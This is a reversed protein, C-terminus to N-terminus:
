NTKGMADLVASGNRIAPRSFARVKHGKATLLRAGKARSDHDAWPGLIRPPGYEFAYGKPTKVRRVRARESEPLRAIARERNAKRRWPGALKRPPADVRELYYRLPVPAAKENRIVVPAILISGGDGVRRIRASVKDGSNGEVCRVVSGAAGGGPGPSVVEVVVGIHVGPWCLMMGVRPAKTWIAGKARAREATVATSASTLGDDPTDTEAYWASVAAGCWPWGTGGLDASRQMQRVRPGTNSGAPVEVTPRALDVLAARAVREGYTM